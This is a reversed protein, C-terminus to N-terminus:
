SQDQAGAHVPDDQRVVERDIMHGCAVCEVNWWFDSVQYRTEGCM